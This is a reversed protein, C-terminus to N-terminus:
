AFQQRRTRSLGAPASVRASTQESDDVAYEDNIGAEEVEEIVSEIFRDMRPSPNRQVSKRKKKAVAM